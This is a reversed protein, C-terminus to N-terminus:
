PLDFILAPCRAAARTDCPREARRDLPLHLTRDGLTLRSQGSPAVRLTAPAVITARAVATATPAPTPATTGNGLTIAAISALVLGTAM